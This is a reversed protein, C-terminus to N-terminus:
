GVVSRQDCSGFASNRRRKRLTVKDGVAGAVEGSVALGKTDFTFDTEAYKRIGHNSEIALWEIQRGAHHQSGIPAMSRDWGTNILTGERTGRVPQWATWHFYGRRTLAGRWPLTM